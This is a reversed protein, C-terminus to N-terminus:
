CCLLARYAPATCPQVYALMNSGCAALERKFATHTSVEVATHSVASTSTSLSYRQQMLGQQQTSPLGLDLQQQQQQQGQSQQQQLSPQQQLTQQSQQPLRQLQQEPTQLIQAQIARSEQL